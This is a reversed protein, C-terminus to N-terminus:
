PHEARWKDAAPSADFLKRRIFDATKAGEHIMVAEAVLGHRYRDAVVSGNHDLITPIWLKSLHDLGYLPLLGDISECNRWQGDSWRTWPVDHKGGESDFVRQQAFLVQTGTPDRFVYLPSEDEGRARARARLQDRLVEACGIPSPSVVCPLRGASKLEAVEAAIGALEEKTVVFAFDAGHLKLKGTGDDKEVVLGAVTGDERASLSGVERCIRGYAGEGSVLVVAFRRPHREVLGLSEPLESRLRAVLRDFSAIRALDIDDHAAAEPKVEVEPEREVLPIQDCLSFAPRPVAAEGHLKEVALREWRSDDDNDPAVVRKDPLIQSAAWAAVAAATDHDFTRTTNFTVEVGLPVNPEGDAVLSFNFFHSNM